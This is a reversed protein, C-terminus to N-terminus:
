AKENQFIPIGKETRKQVFKLLQNEMKAHHNKSQILRLDEHHEEMKVPEEEKAFHSFEQLVEDDYIEDIYEEEIWGDLWGKGELEPFIYGKQRKFYLMRKPIQVYHLYLVLLVAFGMPLVFAWKFRTPTM